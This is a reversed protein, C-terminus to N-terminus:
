LLFIIIGNQEIKSHKSTLNQSANKVSVKQEAQLLGGDVGRVCVFHSEWFKVGVPQYFM